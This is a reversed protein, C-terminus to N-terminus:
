KVFTDMLPVMHRLVREASCAGENEAGGAADPPSYKPHASYRADRAFYVGVGYATANRGALGRDFGQRMIKEVADTTTGHFLADRSVSAGDAM